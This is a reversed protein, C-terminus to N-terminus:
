KVLNKKVVGKEKAPNGFVKHYNKINKTVVSGAGVLSYKGLKVGCILTSNAGLTSGKGIITKV